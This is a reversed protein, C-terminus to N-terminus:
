DGFADRLDRQDTGVALRQRAGIAVLLIGGAFIVLADTELLVALGAV